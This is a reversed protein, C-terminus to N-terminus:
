QPEPPCPNDPVPFGSRTNLRFRGDDERFADYGLEVATLRWCMYVTWRGPGDGYQRPPRTVRGRLRAGQYEDGLFEDGVEIRLPGTMRADGWPGDADPDEMDELVGHVMGSAPPMVALPPPHGGGEHENSGYDIITGTPAPSDGAGVIGCEAATKGEEALCGRVLESLRECENDDEGDVCDRAEPQEPEPPPTHEVPQGPPITVTVVGLDGEEDFAEAPATDEEAPAASPPPDGVIAPGTAPPPEPAPRADEAEAAAYPAAGIARDEDVAAELEELDTYQCPDIDTWMELYGVKATATQAEDRSYGLATLYGRDTCDDAAPEAAAEPAAETAAPAAAPEAPEAPEPEPESGCGAALILAAALAATPRRM